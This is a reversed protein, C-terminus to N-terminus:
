EPPQNRDLLAAKEEHRDRYNPPMAIGLLLQGLLPYHFAHRKERHVLLSIKVWPLLTLPQEHSRDVSCSPPERIPRSNVSYRDM